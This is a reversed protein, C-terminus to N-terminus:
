RKYDLDKREEELAKDIFVQRGESVHRILRGISDAITNGHTTWDMAGETTFTLQLLYSLNKTDNILENITSIQLTDLVDKKSLHATINNRIKYIVVELLYEHRLRVKALQLAYESDPKIKEFYHFHLNNECRDNKDYLARLNNVVKGYFAQKTFYFFHDYDNFVSDIEEKGLMRCEKNLSIEHLSKLFEFQYVIELINQHTKDVFQLNRKESLLNDM